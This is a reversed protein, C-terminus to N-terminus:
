RRSTFTYYDRALCAFVANTWGFGSQNPYVGDKPLAEIDVVNYKESFQGSDMFGKLNTYLWRHTIRAAMNEYGYRALGRIALLHLPAWGNPYVWQAPQHESVNPYELTATLGGYNEFKDIHGALLEAQEDSAMGAWLVYYAALSWVKSQKGTKYNFDFYFGSSENWLYENVSERRASAQEQWAEAEKPKDLILAARAFDTECKYLVANLDIPVYELARGHFRTTFDWGSECEALEHLSTVEYNRSLNKFVERIHPQQRGRWVNRYEQKALEIRPALWEKSGGHDYLDMLLSTLLPPQSRSTLYFRNGAPVLGFRNLLSLLNDAQEYAQRERKTDLLGLAMFYTDWYYMEKHVFGGRPRSGPTFYPYPLGILTDTDTPCSAELEGWFGEIYGLARSIDGRKLQPPLPPENATMKDKANRATSVDANGKKPESTTSVM